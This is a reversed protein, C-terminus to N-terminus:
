RRGMRRNYTEQKIKELVETQLRMSRALDILATTQAIMLTTRLAENKKLDVSAATLGGISQFLLETALDLPDKTESQDAM